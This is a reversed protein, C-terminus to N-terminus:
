VAQLNDTLLTSRDHHVFLYVASEGQKWGICHIPPHHITAETSFEISRRRFCVPAAGEPISVHHPMEDADLPLLAIVKVQDQKVSAFGQEADDEHLMTDDRYIACWKYKDM